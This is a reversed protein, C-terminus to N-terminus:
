RHGASPRQCRLLPSYRQLLFPLMEAAASLKPIVTRAAVEQLYSELTAQHKIRMRWMLLPIDMSDQFASVCGGARADWRRRFSAPSGNYLPEMPGLPGLVAFLFDFFSLERIASHQLRGRSKRRGKPEPIILFITERDLELADSPFVM